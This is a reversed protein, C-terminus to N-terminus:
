AVPGRAILISSDDREREFDRFLVGAILSPDRQRLGPYKGLDWSTRIGDSHMVVLGGPEYPYEFSKMRATTGGVTGNMSVMNITREGSGLLVGAVNGLGCFDVKRRSPSVLAIAAAAGRTNRLAAHVDQLVMEASLDNDRIAEVARMAANGAVAAPPGHGLGDALMLLTDGNARRDVYFTDGCASEGAIPFCLAGVDMRRHGSGPPKPPAAWIRCLVATGAGPLSHIEFLDALRSMAGLGNGPTGGTSFGDQLARGLDPIGSGKDLALISMGLTGGLEEPILLMQGGRGHRVLNNAAETVVIAIKGRVTDNLGLTLSMTAAARRSEGVQSSETVVIRVPAVM